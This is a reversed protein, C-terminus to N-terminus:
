TGKTNLFNEVVSRYEEGKNKDKLTVTPQHLIKNVMSRTLNDIQDREDKSLRPIKRLGKNLESSRINEVRGRLEM